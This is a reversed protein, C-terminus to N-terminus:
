RPDFDLLGNAASVNWPFGPDHSAADTLLKEVFAPPAPWRSDWAPHTSVFTAIDAVTASFPIRLGGPGKPAFEAFLSWFGRRDHSM